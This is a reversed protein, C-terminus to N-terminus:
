CLLRGAWGFYVRRRLWVISQRSAGMALRTMTANRRGIVDAVGLNGVNAGAILLVLALAGLLVYMGARQQGFLAERLPKIRIKTFAFAEPAEDRIQRQVSTLDAHAQDLTIGPRLRGYAAVTRLRTKARQEATLDLPVWVDGGQYLLSFQAPMVGVVTRPVADLTMLKGIAAASSGFRREAVPRSIIVVASSPTEEERRFSRGVAPPTGLMELLGSSIAAGRLAEPEGDGSLSLTVPSSGEIQTFARTQDRWRALLTPGAVIEQVSDGKAPETTLVATLREPDRFPLPRLLTANVIAFIATVAAAALTLLVLSLLSFTPRRWLSRAAHRLSDVGVTTM